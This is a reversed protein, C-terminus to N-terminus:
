SDVSSQPPSFSLLLNKYISFSMLNSSNIRSLGYKWHWNSKWSCDDNWLHSYLPISSLSNHSTHSEFQKSKAPAAERLLVKYIRRNGKSLTAMFKQEIKTPLMKRHTREQPYDNNRTRFSKSNKQFVKLFSLSKKQKKDVAWVMVSFTYRFVPTAM